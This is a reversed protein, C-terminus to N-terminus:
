GNRPNEVSSTMRIVRPSSQGEDVRVDQDIDCAVIGDPGITVRLDFFEIERQRFYGTRGREARRLGESFISAAAFDAGPGQGVEEDPRMCADRGRWQKRPVRPAIVGIKWLQSKEGGLRSRGASGVAGRRM